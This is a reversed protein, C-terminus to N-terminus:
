EGFEKDDENGDSWNIPLIGQRVFRHFSSYRWERIRKVLGHKVPNYHIYNVHKEYDIENKIMHEWYRSQWLNYENRNDKKINRHYENVRKTFNGKILNWRRSFDDDGEPLTWIAHIHDPLVVISNIEFPYVEKVNLIAKRLIDVHRVLLDSRRDKLVVTFFYVGGRVRYRRYKVM